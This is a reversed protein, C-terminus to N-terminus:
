RRNGPDGLADEEEPAPEAGTQAGARSGGAVTGPPPTGLLDEPHGPRGRGDDHHPHPEQGIPAGDPRLGTGKEHDDM